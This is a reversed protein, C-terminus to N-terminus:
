SKVGPILGSIRSTNAGRSLGRGRIALMQEELTQAGALDGQARMTSALNEMSMLTDRHEEGLIRRRIVLAEEQLVRASALDGQHRITSALQAICTATDPHEKGLVRRSIAM